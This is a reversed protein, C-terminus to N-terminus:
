MLCHITPLLYTPTSMLTLPRVALILEGKDGYDDQQSTTATTNNTTATNANANVGAGSNGGTFKKFADM